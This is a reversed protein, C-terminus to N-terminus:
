RLIAKDHGAIIDFVLIGTASSLTIGAFMLKTDIRYSAAV